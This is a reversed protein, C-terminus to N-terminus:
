ITLYAKYAAEDQQFEEVSGGYFNVICATDRLRRLFPMKKETFAALGVNNLGIANLMGCPTECIREPPNGARPELSIGKTAIGGLLGPDFFDQLEEGYGFTGSAAIVPNTLRLGGIDPEDGSGM